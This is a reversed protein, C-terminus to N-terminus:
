VLSYRSWRREGERKVVGAQILALLMRQLTKESCGKISRSIDKINLNKRQRILDIIAKERVEKRNNKNKGIPPLYKPADVRAETPEPLIDENKHNFFNSEIASIGKYNLRFQNLENTLNNFEQKLISANMDSVHGSASAIDLLSATQILNIEILSTLSAVEAQTKDKVSACLSVLNISLENIKTKLIDSKITNSVLFVASSLREAKKYFPMFHTFSM